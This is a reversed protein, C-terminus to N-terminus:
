YDYNYVSNDIDIESIALCVDDELNEQMLKNEEEIDSEIGEEFDEDWSGKEESGDEETRVLLIDVNEMM